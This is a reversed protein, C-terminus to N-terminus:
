ILAKPAEKMEVRCWPGGRVKEWGHKNMMMLTMSREKDGLFVHLVKVPKHLRTWKSGTATWHQGFRVNLNTSKGVYFNGNELELVYTLLVAPIMQIMETAM